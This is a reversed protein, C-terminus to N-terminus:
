GQRSLGLRERWGGGAAAKGGGEDLVLRIGLNTPPVGVSCAGTRPDRIFDTIYGRHVGGLVRIGCNEGLSVLVRGQEDVTQRSYCTSTWDWVNGGVDLLGASNEGFTGFPQPQPPVAPGAGRRAEAEYEALWRVAPNNADGDVLLIDNRLAPGAAYAWEEHTPLRYTQGTRASLWAAYATADVWSVGVVPLSPDRDQRQLKDLPRCGGDAVCAAYEAQSVQRRMIQFGYDIRQQGLVPKVPLSGQVFEGSPYYAFSGPDLTVLPVTVDAAQQQRGADGGVCGALVLVAVAAIAWRGGWSKRDARIRNMTKVRM